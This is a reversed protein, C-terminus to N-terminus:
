TKQRQSQPHIRQGTTAKQLHILTMMSQDSQPIDRNLVREPPLTLCNLKPNIMLYCIVCTFAPLQAEHRANTVAMVGTQHEDEEDVPSSIFSSAMTMSAYQPFPIHRHQM